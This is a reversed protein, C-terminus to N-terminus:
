ANCSEFSVAPLRQDAPAIRLRCTRMISPRDVAIQQAVLGGLSFGLVDCSTTGLRDLFALAHKAM